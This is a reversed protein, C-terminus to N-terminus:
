DYYNIHKFGILRDTRDVPGRYYVLITYYNETEFYSGELAYEDIKQGDYIVYIYDYVGQKLFIKSYYTNEELLSLKFEPQIRWDTLGGFLYIDGKELPQKLVLPITLWVYDASIEPNNVGRASIAFNGNMDQESLYNSTRPNDASFLIDTQKKGREINRIRGAQQWINRIDILRFENGGEFDKSADFRYEFHDNYVYIPKLGRKRTHWRFNQLAEIRIEQHIDNIPFNGPYLKFNVAQLRYRKSVDSSFGIDPVINVQQEAVLFRRTLTLKDPDNDRYIKLLYNGSILFKGKQPFTYRYNVYSTLTNQSPIGEDLYEKTFGDFFEQALLNSISWNADCHVFEATFNSVGEKLEDFSLTLTGEKGLQLVPYALPKQTPALVVSKIKTDYVYNDAILSVARAQPLLWFILLIFFPIKM